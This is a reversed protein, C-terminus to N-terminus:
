ALKPLRPKTSSLALRVDDNVKRQNRAKNKIHVLASFGSKCLYTTAFTLVINSFITRISTPLIRAYCVLVSLLPTALFECQPPQKPPRPALGGVAPPLPHPPLARQRRLCPPRHATGGASLFKANKQLFLKIKPSYQYFFLASKFCPMSIPLPFM